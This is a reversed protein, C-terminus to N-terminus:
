RTENKGSMTLLDDLWSKPFGAELLLSSFREHDFERGPQPNTTFFNLVPKSSLARAAKRLDSGEPWDEPTINGFRGGYTLVLMMQRIPPLSTVLAIAGSRTSDDRLLWVLMHSWRYFQEPALQKAVDLLLKRGDPLMMLLWNHYSSMLELRTKDTWEFDRFRKSARDRVSIARKSAIRSIPMKNALVFDVALSEYTRSVCALALLEDVGELKPLRQELRALHYATLALAHDTPTERLEIEYPQHATSLVAATWPRLERYRYLPCYWGTERTDDVSHGGFASGFASSAFIPVVTSYADDNPPYGGAFTARGDSWGEDGRHKPGTGLGHARAYVEILEAAPLRIGGPKALDRGMLDYAESGYLYIPALHGVGGGYYQVFASNKLGADYLTAAGLHAIQECAGGGEILADAMSGGISQYHLHGFARQFATGVDETIIAREFKTVGAQYRKRAEALDLENGLAAADIDAARLLFEGLQLTGAKRHERGWAILRM